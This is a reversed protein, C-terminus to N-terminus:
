STKRFSMILMEPKSSGSWHYRKLFHRPYPPYSELVKTFGNKEMIKEYFHADRIFVPIKLGDFNVYGKHPDINSDFDEFLDKIVLSDIVHEKPFVSFTILGNVKLMKALKTVITEIDEIWEWSHMAVIIDFYNKYTTALKKDQVLNANILKVKQPLTKRALNIMEQSSDVGTVVHGLSSIEKCFRGVGCGLDLIKCKKIGAFEAQFNIQQLFTPWGVHMNVAADPHIKNDNQHTNFRETLLDWGNQLKPKKPM